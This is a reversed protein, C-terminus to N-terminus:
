PRVEVAQTPLFEIEDSGEPPHFQFYHESLRPLFNWNSLRAAYQPWGAEQKYTIVLKRPVPHPGQEIWIQWDITQQSFALHHCPTGDVSTQGLLSGAQVQETLVAYPDAYVLDAIPVSFGYVDVMRDLAADIGPPVETVAYVNVLLDHITATRGDLVFQSQRRDGRYEVQLRDPRRVAADATAGYEIKEGSTLMSDYTIDAHFTFEGATQLYESMERLIRDAQAEVGDAASASSVSFGLTLILSILISRDRRKTTKIIMRDLLCCIAHWETARGRHPTAVQQYFFSNLRLVCATVHHLLMLDASIVAV